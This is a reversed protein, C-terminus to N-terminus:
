RYGPLSTSIGCDTTVTYTITVNGGAVGTVIGTNPGVTAISNRSSSWKATGTGGNNYIGLNNTSGLTITSGVCVTAPGSIPGAVPFPNVTVTASATASGCTATSVTYSITTTGGAVATILGTSADVTAVSPNSSNWSGGPSGNVPLTISLGACVAANSLTGAYPVPNVTVEHTASSIGCAALSGVKYFITATGPAVGTVVGSANVTAVLDNSSTWAGGPDGSSSLNITSFACVASAGNITGANPLSNM